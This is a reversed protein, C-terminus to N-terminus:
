GASNEWAQWAACSHRMRYDFGTLRCPRSRIFCRNAAFLMRDLRHHYVLLSLLVTIFTFFLLSESATAVAQWWSLLYDDLAVSVIVYLPFDAVKHVAMTRTEGDVPSAATSLWVKRDSHLFDQWEPFPNKSTAEPEMKPLQPYAIIESEDNRLSVVGNSSIRSVSFLKRFHSLSITSSLVGAFSGDPNSIRRSLVMVWDERTPELQPKSILLGNQPNDRLFMFSKRDDVRTEPTRSNDSRHTIIGNVDIVRVSDIEPTRTRLDKLFTNLLRDNLNGGAHQREVEIKTALLNTEIIGLSDAINQKLQQAINDASTEAREQQYQRNQMLAHTVLTYGLVNVLLTVLIVQIRFRATRGRSQQTKQM